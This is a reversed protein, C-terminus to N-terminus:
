DEYHMAFRCHAPRTRERDAASFPEAPSGNAATGPEPPEPRDRRWAVPVLRVRRELMEDVDIVATVTTM